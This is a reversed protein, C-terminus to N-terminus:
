ASPPNGSVEPVTADAMITMMGASSPLPFAVTLREAQAQVDTAASTLAAALVGAAGGSGTAVANDVAATLNDISTRLDDLAAM